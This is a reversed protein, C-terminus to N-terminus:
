TEGRKAIVDLVLRAATASPTEVDARMAVELAPFGECQAQRAAGEALLALLAPAMASPEAQEQLFEPVVNRALVLNPLIVSPVKIM